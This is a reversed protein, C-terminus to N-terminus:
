EQKLASESAELLGADKLIQQWAASGQGTMFGDYNLAERLVAMYKAPPTGKYRCVIAIGRRYVRYPGGPGGSPWTGGKGLSEICVSPLPYDKPERELGVVLWPADARYGACNVSVVIDGINKEQNLIEKRTIFM